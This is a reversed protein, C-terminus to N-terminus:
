KPNGVIQPKHINKPESRYTIDIAYSASDLGHGVIKIDTQYTDFPIKHIIGLAGAIMIEMPDAINAELNGGAELIEVLLSDVIRSATEGSFQCLGEKTYNDTVSQIKTALEFRLDNEKITIGNNQADRFLQLVGDIDEQRYLKKGDLFDNFIITRDMENLFDTNQLIEDAKHRFLEKFKNPSSEQIDAM